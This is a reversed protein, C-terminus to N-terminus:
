TSSALLSKDFSAKRRKLLEEMLFTDTRRLRDCLSHTFFRYIKLAIIPNEKLINKYDDAKLVFCITPESAVITASAPEGDILSMEGFHDGSGLRAITEQGPESSNPVKKTVHVEGSVLMFLGADTEGERIILKGSPFIKEMTVRSVQMLEEDGFDKFIKMKKLKVLKEM